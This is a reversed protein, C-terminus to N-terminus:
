AAGEAMFGKRGGVGTWSTLEEAVEETVSDRRGSWAQYVYRNEKQHKRYVSM